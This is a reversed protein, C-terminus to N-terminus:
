RIIKHILPLPAPATESFSLASLYADGAAAIDAKKSYLTCLPEGASVPDGTKKHIRIGAGLDIRDEKTLRGAGLLTSVTGIKETDMHAIYGTVPCPVTVAPEAYLAMLGPLADADGNQAAIWRRMKEYAAGSDLTQEAKQVAEDRPVGAALAYLEAALTLSLERIDGGVKGRLVDVAEQLELANGVTNGLPRDMNSIVAAMNRGFRQGLAVMKQALLEADEATKMFAGSGYKVDLVINKAGAALKKSMISAAILPISDVTATVDRLAYLLKDAPVLEGSAGIVAIGIEGAQRLFEKGSLTIRYGPVSELKDVTGGTHGLGRGTMKAIKLGMAAALPAAVLTTKDGVGGTSHKDASLNGFVSLDIVDGSGIMAKTLLYTETDTMGRFFVAMLFAAAQYDPISRKVYGDILFGIEAEDLAFGDRKKKIIEYATM